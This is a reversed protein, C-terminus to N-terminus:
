KARPATQLVFPPGLSLAALGRLTILQAMERYDRPRVLDKELYAVADWGGKEARVISTEKM